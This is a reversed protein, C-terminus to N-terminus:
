PDPMATATAYALLQLKLEVGIRPVEMHQPATRFLFFFFFFSKPARLRCPLGTELLIVYQVSFTLQFFCTIIYIM